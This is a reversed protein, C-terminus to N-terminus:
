VNSKRDRLKGVTAIIEEDLRRLEDALSKTTGRLEEARRAQEDRAGTLSRVAQQAQLLRSQLADLLGEAGAETVLPGCLLILPLVVLLLRSLTAAVDLSQGQPTGRNRARRPQPSVPTM